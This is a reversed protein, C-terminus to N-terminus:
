FGILSVKKARHCPASDDQFIINTCQSLHNEMSPVFCKKLITIYKKANVTGDILMLEGVGHYSFCAWVMVSACHKVTKQTCKESYREGSRRKVYQQGQPQFLMIKCEDSFIVNRWELNSWNRHYQAWERRKQKMKVTLNPKKAPKRTIIGKERLRRRVTEVSIEAIKFKRLEARLEVATKFRDKLSMQELQRDVRTTTKRKPGSGKKRNVTGEKKYKQLVRCVTSRNCKMKKSISCLTEGTASFEVIKIKEAETLKKRCKM